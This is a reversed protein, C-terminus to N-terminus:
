ALYRQPHPFHLVQSGALAIVAIKLESAGLRPNFELPSPTAVSTDTVLMSMTSEDVM